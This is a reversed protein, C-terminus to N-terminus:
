WGWNSQKRGCHEHKERHRERCLAVIPAIMVNVMGRRLRFMLGRGASIRPRVGGRGGAVPVVCIRGPTLADRIM